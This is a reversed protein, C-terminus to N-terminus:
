TEHIKFEEHLLGIFTDSSIQHKLDSNDPDNANGNYPNIFTEWTTPLSALIISKFCTNAVHFETNPFKNIHDCYSKLLDLHKLLNKANHLKTEYLLCQIHNVTQNVKNEHTVMLASYMAEASKKSGVHNMQSATVNPYPSTAGL